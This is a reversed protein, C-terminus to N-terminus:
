VQLSRTIATGTTPNAAGKVSERYRGAMDTVIAASNCRGSGFLRLKARARLGGHVGGNHLM